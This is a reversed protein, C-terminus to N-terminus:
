LARSSEKFLTQPYDALPTGCRLKDLKQYTLKLISSISSTIPTRGEVEQKLDYGPAEQDARRKLGETNVAKNEMISNIVM